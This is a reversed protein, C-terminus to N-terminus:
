EKKVSKTFGGGGRQTRHPDTQLADEKLLTGERMRPFVACFESGEDPRSAALRYKGDFGDMCLECGSEVGLDLVFCAWPSAPSLVSGDREHPCPVLEMSVANVRWWRRSWRSMGDSLRALPERCM